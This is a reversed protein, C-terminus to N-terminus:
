RVNTNRTIPIVSDTIIHHRSAVPVYLICFLNYGLNASFLVSIYLFFFIPSIGGVDRRVYTVQMTYEM